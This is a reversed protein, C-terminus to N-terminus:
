SENQIEKIEDVGNLKENNKFREQEDLFERPISKKLIQNNLPLPNEEERKDNKGKDYVIGFYISIAILIILIINTNEGGRVMLIYGLIILIFLIVQKFVGKRKQPKTTVM